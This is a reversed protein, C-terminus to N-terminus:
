IEEVQAKQEPPLTLLGQRLHRPLLTAAREFCGEWGLEM